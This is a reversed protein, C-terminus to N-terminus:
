ESGLDLRTLRAGGLPDCGNVWGYIRQKTQFALLLTAYMERFLPLQRDLILYESNACGEGHSFNAEGWVMIAGQDHVVIKKIRNSGFPSNAVAQLSAALLAGAIFIARIKM